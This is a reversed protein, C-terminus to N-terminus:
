TSERLQSKNPHNLNIPNLNNNEVISLHNPRSKYPVDWYDNKDWCIGTWSGILGGTSISLNWM